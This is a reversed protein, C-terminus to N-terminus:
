KQASANTAEPALELAGLDLPEGFQDDPVVVGRVLSAVVPTPDSRDHPTASNLKSDRVKIELEYNGAPVDSIRFSGDSECLAGFRQQAHAAKSFSEEAAIFEQASAFNERQPWAGLDLKTHLGVSVRHWDVTGAVSPAVAKGVVARGTGGLVVQTTEGSNINVSKRQSEFRSYSVTQEVFVYCQGPPLKDFSFKGDSDTTAEFGYSLFGFRRGTDTYRLVQNAVTVRQNAVPQSDLILKGELRGWPKLTVKLPSALENTSVEAYGQDHV